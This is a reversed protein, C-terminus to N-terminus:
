RLGLHREKARVVATVVSNYPTSVDIREGEVPIAGNIVGIESSRGVLHDLLMSPWAHPIKSGLHRAYEVPDNLDM